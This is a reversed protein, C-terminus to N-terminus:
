ATRNGFKRKLKSPKFYIRDNIIDGRYISETNLKISWGNLKCNNFTNFTLKINGAMLKGAMINIYELRTGIYNYIEYKQKLREEEESFSLNSFLVVFPVKLNNYKNYLEKNNGNEYIYSEAYDMCQALANSYQRSVTVQGNFEIYKVEVGFPLIDDTCIGQDNKQHEMIIKKKIEDKFDLIFDIRGHLTHNFKQLPVETYINCIQSFISKNLFWDKLMDEKNKQSLSTDKIIEELCPNQYKNYYFDKAPEKFTDRLKKDLIRILEDKSFSQDFWDDFFKNILNHQIQKKEDVTNNLEKIKLYLDDLMLSRDVLTNIYTYNIDKRIVHKSKAIATGFLKFCILCCHRIQYSKDSLMREITLTTKEFNSNNKCNCNCKKHFIEEVLVKISFFDSIDNCEDKDIKDLYLSIDNNALFDRIQSNENLEDLLNEM